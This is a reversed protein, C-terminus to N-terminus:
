ALEGTKVPKSASKLFHNEVSLWWTVNPHNWLTFLRLFCYYDLSGALPQHNLCSSLLPSRSKTSVETNDMKVEQVITPNRQCRREQSPLCGARGTHIPASSFISGNSNEWLVPSHDAKGAGTPQWKLGSAEWTNQLKGSNCPCATAQNPCLSLHRKQIRAPPEQKGQRHM